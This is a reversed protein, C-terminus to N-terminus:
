VWRGQRGGCPRGATVVAQHVVAGSGHMGMGFGVIRRVGPTRLVDARKEHFFRCFVYGPFLPLEVEKIRDSWRRRCKYLPLLCEYNQYVLLSAVRKEHTTRSRLAFWSRSDSSTKNVPTDLKMM